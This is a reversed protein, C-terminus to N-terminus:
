SIKIMGESDIDVMDSKQPHDSLFLGFAADCDRFRLRNLLKVFVDDPELFIDPFGFAIITEYIFSFGPRHYLCEAPLM